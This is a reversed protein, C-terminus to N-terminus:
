RLFNVSTRSVYHLIFFQGKQPFVIRGLIMIILWIKNTKVKLSKKRSKKRYHIYSIIFFPFNKYANTEVEVKEILYHLSKIVVEDVNFMVRSNYRQHKKLIM